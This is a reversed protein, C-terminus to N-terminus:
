TNKKSDVNNIEFLVIALLLLGFFISEIRETFFPKALLRNVNAAILISFITTLLEQRYAKKNFVIVASEDRFAKKNTQM